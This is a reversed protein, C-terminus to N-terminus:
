NIAGKQQVAVNVSVNTSVAEAFSPTSTLSMFNVVAVLAFTISLSKNM